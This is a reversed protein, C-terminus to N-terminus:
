YAKNPDFENNLRKNIRIFAKADEEGLFKLMNLTKSFVEKSHEEVLRQGKPTSSVITQRKDTECQDKIILDKKELSKLISAMRGSTLNLRKSIDGVIAHDNEIVLYLMTGMEGKSLDVVPRFVVDRLFMVDMLEKTLAKFDM